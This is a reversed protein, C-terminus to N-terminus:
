SWGEAKYTAYLRACRERAELRWPEIRNGKRVAIALNHLPKDIRRARLLVRIQDDSITDATLLSPEIIKCM